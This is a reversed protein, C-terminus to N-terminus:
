TGSTKPGVNLYPTVWNIEAYRAVQLTLIGPPTFSVTEIIGTVTVEDVTASALMGPVPMVGFFVCNITGQYTKVYQTVNSPVQVAAAGSLGKRTVAIDFSFNGAAVDPNNAPFFRSDITIIPTYVNGRLVSTIYTDALPVSEAFNYWLESNTTVISYNYSALSNFSASGANNPDTILIRAYVEDYDFPLDIVVPPDSTTLLKSISRVQTVPESSTGASPANGSNGSNSPNTVFIVNAFNLVPTPISYVGQNPSFPIPTEVGGIGYELDELEEWFLGNATILKASPIAFAGISYNPSCVTYNLGGSWRLVGGVYGALSQLASLLTMTPQITFQQSLANDFTTWTLNIGVRRALALATEKVSFYRSSTLPVVVEKGSTDVALATQSNAFLLGYQSFNANLQNFLVTNYLVDAISTGGNAGRGLIFSLQKNLLPSSAFIGRSAYGKASNSVINESGNGGATIIASLGFVGIIDGDNGVTNLSTVSWTGGLYDLSLSFNFMQGWNNNPVNSNPIDVYVATSPTAPPVGIITTGGVAVNPSFTNPQYVGNITTGSAATVGVLTAVQGGIDVTYKGGELLTQGYVKTTYAPCELIQGVIKVTCQRNLIPLPEIFSEETGLNEYYTLKIIQSYYSNVGSNEFSIDPSASAYNEVLGLNEYYTQSVTQTFFDGFGGVETAIAPLESYVDQTGVNEYYTQSVTQSYYDNLGANEIVTGTAINAFTLLYQFGTNKFSTHTSTSGEAIFSQYAKASSQYPSTLGTHTSNSNENQFNVHVPNIDFHSV